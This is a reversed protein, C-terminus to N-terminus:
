TPRSPRPRADSRTAADYEFWFAESTGCQAVAHLAGVGAQAALQKIETVVEDVVDPVDDSYRCCWSTYVPHMKIWLNEMLLQYFSARSRDSTHLANVHLLVNTSM